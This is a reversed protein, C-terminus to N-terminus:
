AAVAEAEAMDRKAKGINAMASTGVEANAMAQQMQQQNAFMKAAQEVDQESRMWKAPVKIGNLSDRLATKSDVVHGATPDLQVALALLQASEMLKQGKQAEIADHLPSEFRFTVDAGQLSKPINHPSGFAGNRMLLDFTIEMLAGNYEYEMPEFIPLAARIYEQVRQGVEFATMDPTREPLSLKNLYFAQNIMLRSDRLMDIGIPIGSTDLGLTRLAEGMREDYDQDIWTIGGPFLGVDSKVADKTAILPPRVASEGADLLTQTMSQILRADPLATITAPSFPYQSGSVTQWRPIVYEKNWVAVEELVHEHTIDYYVSFFPKGKADGDYMESDVIIHYCEIEDFPKRTAAETTSPHNKAGFLRELDKAYPKWKRAILCIVGNEDELWVMDRMHWTRYLLANRNKNLRVSLAAAGFSAFDHDAIKTARSFQTVRDHMARKQLGTAWQLWKKSENDEDRNSTTMYAWDKSTPRLMSGIQDGLDRRTLVPYSTMLDGVFSEGLERRLVFDAREPYFNEAIEQCLMMYGTRKTFLDDVTQRLMKKDM